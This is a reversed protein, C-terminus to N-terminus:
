SGSVTPVVTVIQLSVKAIGMELLGIERAAAPSLDIIRGRTFPGRDTIRVVTARGNKLNVVRVKSGLPLSRHAAMFEGSKWREGSTTRSTGGHWSATGQQCVAVAQIPANTGTAEDGSAAGAVLFLCLAVACGPHSRLTFHGPFM